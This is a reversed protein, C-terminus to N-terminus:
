ILDAIILLSPRDMIAGTGGGSRDDVAIIEFDPYDLRALSRLAEEIREAEDRAPVVVSVKPWTELDPMLAAREALWVM